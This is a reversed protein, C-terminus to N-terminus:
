GTEDDLSMRNNIATAVYLVDAVDYISSLNFQERIHIREKNDINKTQSSVSNHTNFGVPTVVENLVKKM